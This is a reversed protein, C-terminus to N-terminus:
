NKTVECACIKKLILLWEEEEIDTAVTFREPKVGLGISKNEGLRHYPEIEVREINSYKRTLLSIGNFHGDNDNRGKIIPCRLVVRKGLKNLLRLNSLILKNDVGTFKKHANSDTVKYDYLFCDIFPAAKEIVQGNVFGCTEVATSIGREKSLKLVELLFEPQYFPEGGSVTLGGGSTEYFIKDKEVETIVEEATVENGILEMAGSPCCESCKGCLVCEEPNFKHVGDKISHCCRKCVGVCKGCAVCFNSRLMIQESKHKSEPNHCWVCNLPCGKFFVTTRIGDGDNICYRQINFIIGKLNNM